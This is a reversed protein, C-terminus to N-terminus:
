LQAGAVIERLMTELRHLVIKGLENSDDQRNARRNTQKDIELAVTKYKDQM